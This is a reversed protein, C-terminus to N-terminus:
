LTEDFLVKRMMDTHIYLYRQTSQISEHGLMEKIEYISRGIHLLNQAYSHRLWYATSPLGAKKMAKLIQDSVAGSEIPRYPSFLSLFLERYEAKPRVKLVYAAVAKLTSEPIPLVAPNGTKRKPIIIEAKQFSIDDLTIRSIEMPRMGLTYALHVMAYTRIETPTGLALSKFLKQIETPRLFKPPRSPTFCRPDKLLPALDKKLIKTEDYLYELFGRLHARYVKRTAISLPQDFESLFDDIHEIKLSSLDIKNNELYAHLSALVRRSSSTRVEKTQELYLLYQEYLDPLRVQHNPIQLPQDIRGKEHLYGSLGILAHAAKKVGSHDRFTRFTDFTFMDKWATDQHISFILFEIMIRNHYERIRRSRPTEEPELWQVYDLMAALLRRTDEDAV